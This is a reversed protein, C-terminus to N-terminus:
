LDKTLWHVITSWFDDYQPWDVLGGCWHPACDSAFAASRGKEVERVALIPDGSYKLLLTADKKLAVRNYGVLVPFDNCSIAELIPHHKTVPKPHFGRYVAIDDPTSSCTVPLVKEVESGHYNGRLEHGAFSAFGGIMLLGGGGSVFYEVARSATNGIQDRGIDSLIIVDCSKSKLEAQPFRDFDPDVYQVTYHKELSSRLYRAAVDAPPDGYYVIKTL